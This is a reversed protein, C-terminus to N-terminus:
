KIPEATFYTQDKGAIPKVTMPDFGMKKGLNAWAVNANEQPSTPLYGGVVMYPVPKSARLLDEFQKNTMKFEKVM